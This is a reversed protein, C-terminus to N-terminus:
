SNVEKTAHTINYCLIVGLAFRNSVFLLRARVINSGIACAIGMGGFIFFPSRAGRYEIIQV